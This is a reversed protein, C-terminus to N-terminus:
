VAEASMEAAIASSSPATVQGKVPGSIQAVLTEVVNPPAFVAEANARASARLGAEDADLRGLMERVAQELDDVDGPRHFAVHHGTVAEGNGIATSLVVPLGCALAEGTAISGPEYPSPVLLIAASRMLGPLEASPVRGVYEAIRPNLQTLHVTYDSWQTPGGIVLLRVSDALDDLRHSLQVVDDVGKRASIRSIFLITRTGPDPSPVGPSFRDLDIASRVVGMREYPVGNDHHLLENFRESMGIVRDAKSFEKTQVRSRYKLWARILFHILLPESQLAYAEEARHWRLEGAAHTCPHVVIPPALRRLRGLLFLEATSLQYVADYPCRRHERLLLLNLRLHGVSRAALGTFLAGAKSRSYWRGWQWRSRHAILRLQGRDGEITPPETGVLPLYVDVDVGRRLLEELMLLGMEPVGGGAGVPGTWAIRM